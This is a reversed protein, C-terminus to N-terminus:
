RCSAPVSGSRTRCGPRRLWPWPKSSGGAMLRLRRSSSLRLRPSCSNV